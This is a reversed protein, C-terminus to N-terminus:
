RNNKFHVGIFHQGCKPVVRLSEDDIQIQMFFYTPHREMLRGWRRPFVGRCKTKGQNASTTGFKM